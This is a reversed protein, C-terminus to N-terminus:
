HAVCSALTEPTCIDMDTYIVEPVQKGEILDKTAMFVKYGMEFPRQGVLVNGLRDRLIEQQMPLTDASLIVLDGSKLRDVYKAIALRYAKHVSQTWAGIPIFANLTPQTALLDAMQQVSVTSDGNCYLPTGPAEVWNKDKLADRVGQLRENLNSAAAEGSQMAYLGGNPKLKALQVGLEHGLQYNNSGVYTRRLGRDKELLDSDWATVPISTNKSLKLVRAMAPANAVSIAIGAVRRTILDQVLQVQEQEDPQSPGIYECRYGPSESAAKKCGQSALEFFPHNLFKPVVAIIKEEEAHLPRAAFLFLACCVFIIARM